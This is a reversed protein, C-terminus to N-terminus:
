AGDAAPWAVGKCSSVSRLLPRGGAFLAKTCFQPENGLEMAALQRESDARIQALVGYEGKAIAERWGPPNTVGCREVDECAGILRAILEADSLRSYAAGFGGELAALRRELLKM